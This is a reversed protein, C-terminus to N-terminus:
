ASPKSIMRLLILFIRDWIECIALTKLPCMNVKMGTKVVFMGVLFIM